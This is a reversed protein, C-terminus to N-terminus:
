KRTCKIKLGGQDNIAKTANRNEITLTMKRVPRFIAVYKEGDQKVTYKVETYGFAVKGDSGFELLTVGKSDWSTNKFPDDASGALISTGSPSSAGFISLCSTFLCTCAFVMTVVVMFGLKKM